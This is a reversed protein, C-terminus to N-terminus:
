QKVFVNTETCGSDDDKGTVTMTTKGDVTVVLLTSTDCNNDGTSCIKIQSDSLIQFTGTDRGDKRTYVYTGDKELELMNCSQACSETNNEDTDTCGTKTTKTNAWTGAVDDASDIVGLQDKLEEESCSFTM